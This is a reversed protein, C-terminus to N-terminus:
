LVKYLWPKNRIIRGTLGLIVSLNRIYGGLHSFTFKGKKGPILASILACLFFVPIEALYVSLISLLWFVGYQKRIRVFGSLMVQLGKRDYLNHDKRTFSGSEKNVTVGELHVAEIDDYICLKGQRQLRGCWEAEEAYLFFDEDMLGAKEIATRKVMLFAGNVWDVETAHRPSAMETLDSVASAPPDTEVHPKKIGFSRGTASFVKGLAPLLLLHSIGGPMNFFGSLQTTRDSNLLKIGAAIYPAAALRGYCRGIANDEMLTDSNLLLVMEGETQRIAENNARAFGANYGM